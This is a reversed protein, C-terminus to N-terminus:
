QAVRIWLVGCIAGIFMGGCICVALEFGQSPVVTSEVIASLTAASTERERLAMEANEAMIAARQDRILEEIIPRAVREIQEDAIYEM